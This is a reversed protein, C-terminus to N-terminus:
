RQGSSGPQRWRQREAEILWAPKEDGTWNHLIDGYINVRRQHLLPFFERWKRLVDLNVDAAIVEVTDRGAQALIAGSPDCIFSSGYFTNTGEVGVRNCAAVFVGNAVAHGQMVRQWADRSDMAPDNPESGIATPYYILEAGHLTYIRALEPFWQDYCTPAAIRLGAAAHVPFADSGGFFATEHYGDGSPIHVKRTIGVLRGAEHLTATDFYRGDQTREYLSGIVAVGLSGSLEAFFTESPGGPLPEAYAFGAPDRTVAFYPNLTFEPLGILQAGASVAEGALQRIQARMADVDGLWRTQLLALRTM